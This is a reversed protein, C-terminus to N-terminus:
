PLSPRRLTFRFCKQGALLYKREFHTEGRIRPFRAGNLAHFSVFEMGYVHTFTKLADVAYDSLNTGFELIGGPKLTDLLTRTFPMSHWRLNSHKPKPYPNPYLIFLRDVSGPLINQSIWLRADAHIAHLNKIQPHHNLRGQFKAFREHTSEIGLVTVEPHRRAFLIPHLGVGAGIELALPGGLAMCPEAKVQPGAVRFPRESSPIQRLNPPM